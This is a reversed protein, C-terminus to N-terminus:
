TLNPSSWSFWSKKLTSQIKLIKPSKGSHAWLTYKFTSHIEDRTFANPMKRIPQLIM